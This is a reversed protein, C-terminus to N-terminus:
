TLLVVGGKISWIKRLNYIAFTVVSGRFRCNAQRGFGRRLCANMLVEVPSPVHRCNLAGEPETFLSAPNKM